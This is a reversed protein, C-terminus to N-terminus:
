GTEISLKLARRWGAASHSDAARLVWSRGGVVFSLCRTTIDFSMRTGHTLSVVNMPYEAHNDRFLLLRQQVLVQPVSIPLKGWTSAPQEVAHSARSAKCSTERPRRVASCLPGYIARNPPAEAAHEEDAGQGGGAHKCAASQRFLISQGGTGCM